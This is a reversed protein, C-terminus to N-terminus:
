DHDEVYNAVSDGHIASVWFRWGFGFAREGGFAHFLSAGGRETQASEFGFGVDQDGAGIHAGRLSCFDKGFGQAEREFFDTGAFGQFWGSIGGRVALSPM